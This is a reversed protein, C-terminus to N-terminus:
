LPDCAIVSTSLRRIPSSPVVEHFRTNLPHRPPRVVVTVPSPRLFTVTPPPLVTEHFRRDPSPRTFGPTPLNRPCGWMLPRPVEHSRDCLVVEHYLDDTKRPTPFLFDHRDRTLVGWDRTEVGPHHNPIVIEHTPDEHSSESDPSM